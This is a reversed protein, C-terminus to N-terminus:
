VVDPSEDDSAVSLYRPDNQLGGRGKNGMEESRRTTGDLTRDKQENLHDLRDGEAKFQFQAVWSCITEM